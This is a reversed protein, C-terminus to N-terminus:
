NEEKVKAKDILSAPHNGFESKRFLLDFYGVLSNGFNELEIDSMSLGFEEELIIKLESITQKSLKM